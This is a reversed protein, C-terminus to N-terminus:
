LYKRHVQKSDRFATCIHHNMGHITQLMSQVAPIPTGLQCLSLAATLLTIHDYCSKANNSCLAAPQKWQCLLDYFLGKNLCQLVAAKHKRNSYQKNALPDLMKANWMVARGLWKNNANFDAKFLLIICLKEVNFNGPSKELMMNLGKCRRKPSYGTKLPIDTMTVNFVLINPNFTGAMYHRFHISSLSL